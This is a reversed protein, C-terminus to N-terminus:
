GGLLTRKKTKAFEMLGKPSTNVLSSYSVGSGRGGIQEPDYKRVDDLSIPHPPPKPAKVKPTMM